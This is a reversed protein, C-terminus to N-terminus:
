SEDYPRRKIQEIDNAFDEAAKWIDSFEYHVIRRGIHKHHNSMGTGHNENDYGIIRHGKRIYVFSYSVGEPCSSTKEVNWIRMQIIDGNSEVQKHYFIEETM